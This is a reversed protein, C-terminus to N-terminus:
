GRLIYWQSANGVKSSYRGELIGEDNVHYIEMASGLQNYWMGVLSSHTNGAINLQM